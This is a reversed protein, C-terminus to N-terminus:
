FLSLQTDKKYRRKEKLLPIINELEGLFPSPSGTLPRGRFNRSRAWSLHLGIRARTMAVYLLRREEDIRDPQNDGYLTFPLIGDELGIVFVHDFELGKAAHITLIHVGETEFEPLGGADSYSLADLLPHVGGLMDALEFLRAMAPNRRETQFEKESQASERVKLLFSKVPEDEWWPRGGSLAFSTGCVPIGHDKLANIVPGALPAARILVACDTPAATEAYADAINDANADNSDADDSDKAFFSAGGILRSVARAVGEAESKDSPYERRYLAVPRDTGRLESGTLITAASIIPAACRFSTALEFRSAGPYDLTFRDIFRIDSGRFSYIAQNPDGIVWLSPDDAANDINNATKENKALLRLLLYQGINIDQYEDVFIHQFSKRYRALIEKKAALLRAATAILDDYDLFGSEHLRNQYRSYLTEMEAAAQPVPPMDAPFVFLGPEEEGPLLLFRKREEIYRGLKGPGTKGGGTKCIEGLIEDRQSENVIEFDVPLEAELLGAEDAQERLLSCCFSHFTAARVTGSASTKVLYGIRERL